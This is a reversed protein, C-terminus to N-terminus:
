SLGEVPSRIGKEYFDHAAGSYYGIKKCRTCHYRHLDLDVILSVEESVWEREWEGTWDDQTEVWQSRIEYHNCM